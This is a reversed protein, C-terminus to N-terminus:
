LHSRSFLIHLERRRHGISYQCGGSRLCRRGALTRSLPSDESKGLQDFEDIHIFTDGYTYPVKHNIEGVVLKSVRHGTPLMWLDALSVFGAENPPTGQIFAEDIPLQGSEILAPIRSFRSPILDVLGGTIADGAVWGSFFTKLRFKQNQLDKMTILDGLSVLQILELDQLAPLDSRM